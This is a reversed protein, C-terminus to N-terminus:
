LSGSDLEPHCRKNTMGAVSGSDRPDFLDQILNLIVTNFSGPDTGPIVAVGLWKEGQFTDM